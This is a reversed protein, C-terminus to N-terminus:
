KNRNELNALDAESIVEFVRVVKNVGSVARAVEAARAAERETVLGMMYVIGRDTTVKIAQAQLDKADVFSAKVRASLVADNSRAGMSAPEMVALENVISRVNEIRGAAQELAKRDSENPVEGSLLLMRNYSTATIRGSPSLERARSAMKLEISQDEIQAGSTRRDIVMMTGGVMAGGVILPACGPLAAGAAAVLAAVLVTRRHSKSRANSQFTM